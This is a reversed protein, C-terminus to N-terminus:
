NTIIIKRSYINQNVTVKLLYIGSSLAGASVSLKLSKGNDSIVSYDISHKSGILDYVEVNISKTCKDNESIEVTAITSFPNPQVNFFNSMKESENIIDPNNQPLFSNMFIPFTASSLIGTGNDLYVASDVIGCALGSLDPNNIVGIYPKAVKTLYIKKDAALQADLTGGKYMSTTDCVISDLLIRSNAIQVSDGSSIDVQYLSTAAHPWILGIYFINYYLKTGDPSFEIGASQGYYYNPPAITDCSYFVVLNSIIGTSRDFNLIENKHNNRFSNALKTGDPSPKLYSIGTTEILGANSIVPTTNFGTNTLLYAYFQNTFGKMVIIWIDSNNEHKIAAIKRTASDPFLINDQSIVGGLGGNQSMDVISYYLHYLSYNATDNGSYFFYYLQNNGPQPVILSSESWSEALLYTSNMVQHNKNWITNGDSYFLLNGNTDSITACLLSNLKGDFVPIATGSSFDLGAYEGFYWHWTRKLDPNTQAQAFAISILLFFFLLFHKM